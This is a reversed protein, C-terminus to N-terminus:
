PSCPRGRRPCRYVSWGSHSPAAHRRCRRHRGGVLRTAGHEGYDADCQAPGIRENHRREKNEQDTREGRQAHRDVNKWADVDRDDAHGKLAEIAVDKSSYGTLIIIALNPSLKKMERLVETGSLGPMMVDLLVLDIENPKRLLQM